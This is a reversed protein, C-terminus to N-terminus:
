RVFRPFRDICFRKDAIRLERDIKLTLFNFDKLYVVPPKSLVVIRTFEIAM